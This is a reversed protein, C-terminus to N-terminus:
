FFMVRALLRGKGGQSSETGVQSPGLPPPLTGLLAEAANLPLPPLNIWKEEFLSSRKLDVLFQKESSNRGLISLFATGGHQVGLELFDGAIGQVKHLAFLYCWFTVSEPPFPVEVNRFRLYDNHLNVASQSIKEVDNLEAYMGKAGAYGLFNPPVSKGFLFM